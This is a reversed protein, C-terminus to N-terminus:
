KRNRIVGAKAAEINLEDQYDKYAQKTKTLQSKFDLANGINKFMSEYMQTEFMGKQTAFNANLARNSRSVDLKIAENKSKIDANIKETEARIGDNLVNTELNGKLQAELANRTLQNLSSSNEGSARLMDATSRFSNDIFSSNFNRPKFSLLPTDTVRLDEPATTKKNNIFNKLNVGLQALNLGMGIAADNTLSKEYGSLKPKERKLNRDGSDMVITNSALDIKKKPIGFNFDKLNFNSANSNSSGTRKSLLNSVMTSISSASQVAANDENSTKASAPIKLSGNKWFDLDNSTKSSVDKNLLGDKKETVGFNFDDLNFNSMNIGKAKVSSIYSKIKESIRDYSIFDKNDKAKELETRFFDLRKQIDNEAM